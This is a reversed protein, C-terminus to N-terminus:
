VHSKVWGVWVVGMSAVLVSQCGKQWCLEDDRPYVASWPEAFAMWPEERGLRMVAPRQSSTVM